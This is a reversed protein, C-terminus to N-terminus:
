AGEVMQAVLAQGLSIGGDNCPVQKHILVRFGAEQLRPVTLDLLLRNQFCGGSLAVTDLGSADRLAQCVDVISQAMSVHFRRAIWAPSRQQRVDALLAALLPRAQLVRTTQVWSQAIGWSQVGPVIEWPCPYPEDSATAEPGWGLANQELEIAAQAEYSTTHSLGLLAAVADFLRGVSSTLPTNVGRAVMQELTRREAASVMALTAVESSLGVAQLYGLAIRYPKHVAQDGGPLPLYQWHAARQFGRTEGLLFEGGWIHGDLGYGTGDLIVGIVPGVHGADALCAALHAHHHQVAVHQGEQAAGFRSAMYDPHMDYAVREPTVDFLRQYLAVTHRYHEWTELNQLDGIHQSVFAYRDRTLCFTNKLEAGCALIPRMDYPLKIPDPAYGRARRVPQPGSAPVSYVSDDYRSHIGRDHMLLMDAIHGLRRMAEDNDQAIPEESLNGSTMVLPLHTDDLLIHHLPTYPLMLGLCRQHPAVESVIPSDARWRALVIPAQTSALLAREAEGLQAHAEAEALDAVMVAFPKHPRQKRQRLRQVAEANTADCALQYGGLGKLAVIQGQRLAEAAQRPAEDREAITDGLTDVLSLHPGCVPCANPQAHFRRDLPDDYERQCASCMTFGRMTTRPRDYPISEIITFRPGCNTCNTFPYRYRRNAPDCLERLCDPCTAVDPSVLQYAGTLAQSHRIEFVASGDPPVDLVHLSEIRAIPPAEDRLGCMFATLAEPVGEVLIEVGASTNRVWGALGHQMALRYVFPRFGVGQVVGTIEIRHAHRAALAKRDVGDAVRDV